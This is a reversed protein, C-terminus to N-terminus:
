ESKAPAKKRGGGTKEVFKKPDFKFGAALAADMMKEKRSKAQNAAKAEGELEPIVIGGKRFSALRLKIGRTEAGAKKVRTELDAFNKSAKVLKLFEVPELKKEAAM